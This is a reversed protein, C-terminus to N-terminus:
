WIQTIPVDVFPEGIRKQSSYRLSWHWCKSLSKWFKHCQGRASSVFSEPVKMLKTSTKLLWAASHFVDAHQNFVRTSRRCAAPLSFSSIESLSHACENFQDRGRWQDQGQAKYKNEAGPAQRDAMEYVTDADDNAKLVQLAPLIQDRIWIDRLLISISVQSLVLLSFLVEVLGRISECFDEAGRTVDASISSVMWTKLMWHPADTGIVSPGEPFRADRRHVVIGQIFDSLRHHFDGVVRRFDGLGSGEVAHLDDMPRISLIKDWQATLEVSRALTVGNSIMSDLVDMAAKFRRRM